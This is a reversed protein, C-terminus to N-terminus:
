SPALYQWARDALAALDEPVYRAVDEPVARGFLQAAFTEPIDGNRVALAVGARAIITRVAEEDEGLHDEALSLNRAAQPIMEVPHEGIRAPADLALNSSTPSSM